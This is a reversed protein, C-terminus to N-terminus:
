SRKYWFLTRGESVQVEKVINANNRILDRFKELTYNPFIDERSALMRVVQPDKKDVFEIVGNASTDILWNIIWELPINCGIALHHIVALAVLGDAQIREFASLREMNMWGQAPSPDALNMQLVTLNLKLKRAREFAVNCAHPDGDIGLVAEAGSDLAVEAFAGDNCGLDLLQKPKVSSCFQSVLEAKSKAENSSYSSLTTYSDWTTVQGSPLELGEIWRHLQTIMSILASQPLKRQSNSSTVADNKQAKNQFWTPLVIHTLSRLSFKKRLPILQSIHETPIGEMRGKYYTNYPVGCYAYLLLPNLFQECFQKHGLWFEGDQYPRLSLLDIFVPKSGQFQINYASADSLNANNNLLKKQFQLHFLAAQKLASFPWEYPYSILPIRPHEILYTVDSLDLNLTELPVEESQILQRSTNLKKLLGSDRVFEYQAKGIETITRFIRGDQEYIHGAPDRYSGTVRQTVNNNGGTNAVM